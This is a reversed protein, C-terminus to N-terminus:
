PDDSFDQYSAFRDAAIKPRAIAPDDCRRDLVYDRCRAINLRIGVSDNVAVNGNALAVIEVRPRSAPRPYLQVAVSFL